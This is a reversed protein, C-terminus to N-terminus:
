FPVLGVIDAWGDCISHYVKVIRVLMGIIGIRVIRGVSGLMWINYWM